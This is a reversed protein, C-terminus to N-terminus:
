FSTPQPPNRVHPAAALWSSGPRRRRSAASSPASRTTANTGTTRRAARRWTGRTGTSRRATAWRGGMAPAWRRRVTTTTPGRRRHRRRCRPPSPLPQSRLPHSLVSPPRPHSPLYYNPSSSSPLPHSSCRCRHPARADRGGRAQSWGGGGVRRRRRRGLQLREKTKTTM